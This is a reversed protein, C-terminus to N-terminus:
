ERVEEHEIVKVKYLCQPCTAYYPNQGKYSWVHECKNCKIKIPRHLEPMIKRKMTHLQRHCAVCLDIKVNREYDLHHSEIRSTQVNCINCNKM